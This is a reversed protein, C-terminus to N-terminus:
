VSEFSNMGERTTAKLHTLKEEFALQDTAMFTVINIETSFYYRNREIAESNVLSTIEKGM